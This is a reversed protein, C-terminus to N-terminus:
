DNKRISVLKESQDKKPELGGIKRFNEVKNVLKETRKRGDSVSARSKELFEEFDCFAEGVLRTQDYIDTALQIIKQTAEGQKKNNWTRLIIQIIAILTTPGVIAIKNRFAEEILSDECALIYAGEIPMVMVILDLAESGFLSRYETNSLSKIHRKLSTIHDKRHREKDNQDEAKLYQAYDLTSVKSDVVIKRGEPLKIVYDPRESGRQKDEDFDIGEKLGANELIKRLTIEGFQGIKKSSGKTLLTYMDHVSEKLSAQQYAHQNKFDDVTLKLEDIKSSYGELNNNKINNNILYYIAVVLGAIVIVLLISLTEINM